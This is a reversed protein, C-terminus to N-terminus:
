NTKTPKLKYRTEIGKVIALLAARVLIALERDPDARLRHMSRGAATPTSRLDAECVACPEPQDHENCVTISM